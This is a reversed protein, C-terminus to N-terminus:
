FVMNNSVEHRLEIYIIYKMRGKIESTFLDCMKEM